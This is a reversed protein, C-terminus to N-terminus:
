EAHSEATKDASAVRAATQAVMLGATPEVMRAVMLGATPEVM